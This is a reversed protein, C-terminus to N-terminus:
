IGLYHNNNNIAALLTSPTESLFYLTGEDLSSGIFHQPGITSSSEPTICRWKASTIQCSSAVNQHSEKKGAKKM